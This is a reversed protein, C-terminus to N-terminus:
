FPLEATTNLKRRWFDTTNVFTATGCMLLVALVLGQHLNM